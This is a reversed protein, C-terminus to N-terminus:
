WNKGDFLKILYLNFSLKSGNKILYNLITRLINM